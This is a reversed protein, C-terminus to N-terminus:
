FKRTACFRAFRKMLQAGYTSDRRRALLADVDLGEAEIDSRRDELYYGVIEADMEPHYQVSWTVDSYRLAAHPDLDSKALVEAGPPKEVVSDLHTMVIHPEAEIGGFLPDEALHVIDVTGIERGRPNPAVRGGLAEGLLQHGFCIGFIPV